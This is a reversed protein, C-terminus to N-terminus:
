EEALLRTIPLRRLLRVPLIAAAAAVAVGGGAAAAAVLYGVPPLGGGIAAAIGLGAGAGLLGGALGLIAAEYGALRVLRSGGWGVAGLLAFEASRERINVYLVDAVTAAGLLMTIAAAVYDTGRVQVTIADGLLTGTVSGRFGTAIVALLTLAAVGFALSLAGLATRAPARLVNTWALGGITRPARRVRVRAVAPRIAAAPSARTARWAPVLAALLALVLAAPTATLLYWPQLPVSLVLAAVAALATGAV